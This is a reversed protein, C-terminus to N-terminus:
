ACAFRPALTITGGITEVVLVLALEVLAVPATAVVVVGMLALLVFEM